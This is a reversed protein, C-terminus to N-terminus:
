NNGLFCRMVDCLQRTSIITMDRGRSQYVDTPKLIVGFDQHRRLKDQFLFPFGDIDNDAAM